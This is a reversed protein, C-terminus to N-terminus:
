LPWSKEACQRPQQFLVWQDLNVAVARDILAIAAAPNGNQFEIVGLLHLADANGPERALIQCYLAAAESLQGKQHLLVAQQLM